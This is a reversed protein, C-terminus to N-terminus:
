RKKAREALIMSRIASDSHGDAKLEAARAWESSKLDPIRLDEAWEGAAVRSGMDKLNNWFKNAM